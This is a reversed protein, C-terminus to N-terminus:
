LGLQTQIWRAGDQFTEPATGHGKHGISPSLILEVQPSRVGQDFATDTLERVLQYCATTNVMTDRNGIYFRVATKVLAEKLHFLSLRDILPNNPIDQFSTSVSLQTLPAFGLLARIRPEKAALHAAIFSGRSLGGAALFEPHVVKKEIVEDIASLCRNIFPSIFDKGKKINAVWVKVVERKDYDDHFPLSISFIRLPKGELGSVPQNFPDLELSDPGSLSFYFFAPLPGEEFPPGKAYLTVGCDLEERALNPV